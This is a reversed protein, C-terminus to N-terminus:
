GTHSPDPAHMEGEGHIAIRQESRGSPVRIVLRTGAGLASHVQLTGGIREIRERISALGIHGERLLTSYLIPPTFGLGDDVVQLILHGEAEVLTVALCTAQAHRCVNAIAERTARFVAEEIPRPFRQEGDIGDASFTALILEDRSIQQIVGALASVLGLHALEPPYLESCVARLEIAVDKALEALRLLQDRQFDNAEAVVEARRALSLLTQLPGDHLDQALQRRGSEELSMLRDRLLALEAVRAQLQEVLVVNAIAIAAQSALTEILGREEANLDNNSRTPGIYLLGSEYEQARLPIWRGGALPQEGIPWHDAAELLRTSIAPEQCVGSAACIVLRNDASRRFIAAGRLDLSITLGDAVAKLALDASERSALLRSVTQLLRSRDYRDGFLAQDIVRRLWTHIPLVTLTVLFFFFFALPPQYEFHGQQRAISMGYFGLAYVSALVLSTFGFVVGRKIVPEINLTGRQFISYAFSIPLAILSLAAIQPRILPQDILSEPILVLLTLPLFAALTGGIVVQLQHRLLPTAPYRYAQILLYVCM